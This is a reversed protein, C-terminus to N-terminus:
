DLPIAKPLKILYGDRVREVSASQLNTWGYKNDTYSGTVGVLEYLDAIAVTGYRDVAECLRDLVDEADGRNDLVIDDYRYTTRPRSASSARGGKKDSYSNYSIYDARYGDKRERRGNGGYLVMDIGDRVIDSILKKVAPILVDTFIYSKVNSADESIFVDTFKSLESKKKLKATGSIVKEMKKRETGVKQETKSKHSNPAYNEM